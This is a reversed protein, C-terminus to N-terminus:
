DFMKRLTKILIFIHVRYSNFIKFVINTAGLPMIKWNPAFVIKKLFIQNHQLYQKDKNHLEKFIHDPPSIPLRSIGPTNNRYICYFPYSM